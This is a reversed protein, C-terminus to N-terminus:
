QVLQVSLQILMALIIVLSLAFIRMRLPVFNSGIHVYTHVYRLAVYSWALGVNLMGVNHTLAIIICLAYFLIPIEFQNAINNSVKQVDPTWAQNNLATEKLDVANDKVAKSKRIILPIYLFVVLLMHALVPYIIEVNNM